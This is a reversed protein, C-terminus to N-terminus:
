IPLPLSEHIEISCSEMWELHPHGNLLEVAEEMTNAQLISYGIVEKDSLSLGSKTVKMGNGLPTGLDVMGSGVKNQWEFWPEMSEKADQPSINAMAESAAVPAHYIVIFKKM